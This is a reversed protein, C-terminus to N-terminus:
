DDEADEAADDDAVDDGVGDDAARSFEVQIRGPGISAWAADREVGAVDLTVGADSTAVIRATTERGDVDVKVLRGVNRRWHRPETLARDVGPSSVELVFPGAFADEGASDLADSMARSVAAVTDLDVGGDADVTVRVLSRRGAATVVVDELDCGTAAVVPGLVDLLHERTRAPSRGATAPPM